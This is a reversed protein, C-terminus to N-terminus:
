NPNDNRIIMGEDPLAQGGNQTLFLVQLNDALSPIAQFRDGLGLFQVGVDNEHIQM